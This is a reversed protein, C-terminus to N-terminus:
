SLLLPPGVLMELLALIELEEQLLVQEMLGQM